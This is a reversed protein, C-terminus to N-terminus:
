GKVAKTAATTVTLPDYGPTTAVIRVSLKKGKQKKTLKFSAGTAGKIAKGNALWQYALTTGDPSYSGAKVKLTKGVVAKGSIAPKGSSSIAGGAVPGTAGSQADRTEYGALAGTVRISITQGVQGASPVFTAGTAGPVAVGNALWQVALSVGGPGWAGPDATLTSGLKATGGVSPARSTTLLGPGVAATAPSTESSSAYDPKAGTVRVSIVQGLNAPTLPYTAGTAGPIDAGNARWQYTFTAGGPTWSGPDATLTTGVRPDGTIHTANSGTVTGLLTRTTAQPSSPFSSANQAADAAIASFSYTHGAEGVFTATGTAEGTHWLAYDGGDVARYVKVEGVSSTADSSSWSVPFSSPGTTASLGAVTATPKDRDILNSWTNTEIPANLDFVISAKAPVVAGTTVAPTYAVDFYLVGQGETGDLNPPLFGHLPDEPLEGTAPDLTTLVWSVHGNATRSAAVNLQLGAESVVDLTDDLSTSGESPTWTTDGFMLGGFTLTAMDFKTPDLDSDVTVVQAPATASKSNEFYVAYRQTGTGTIANSTGGGKPGVMENPDLSTVGQYGLELGDEFCTTGLSGYTWAKSGVRAAAVAVKIAKSAPFLDAACSLGSFATSVGFSLVDGWGGFKWPAGNDAWNGIGQQTIDRV